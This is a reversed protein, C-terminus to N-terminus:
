KVTWCKFKRICSDCDKKIVLGMSTLNEALRSAYYDAPISVKDGNLKSLLGKITGDNKCWDTFDEDAKQQSKNLTSGTKIIRTPEDVIKVVWASWHKKRIVCQRGNIIVTDGVERNPLELRNGPKRVVEDSYDEKISSLSWHDVGRRVDKPTSDNLSKTSVTLKVVM